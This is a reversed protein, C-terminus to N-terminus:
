DLFRRWLPFSVALVSVCQSYTCLAYSIADNPLSLPSFSRWYVVSRVDDSLTGCTDEVGLVSYCPLRFSSFFFLRKQTYTYLLAHTCLTNKTDFQKGSKGPSHAPIRPYKSDKASLRAFSETRRQAVIGRITCPSSCLVAGRSHKQVLFLVSHEIDLPSLNWFSGSPERAPGRIILHCLPYPCTAYILLFLQFPDQERDSTSHTPCPKSNDQM